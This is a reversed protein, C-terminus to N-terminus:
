TNHHSFKIYSTSNHQSQPPSQKNCSFFYMFFLVFSSPHSSLRNDPWLNFVLLSMVLMIIKNAVGDIMRNTFIGHWWVILKNNKFRVTIGKTIKETYVTSIKRDVYKCIYKVMPNVGDTIDKTFTVHWWVIQDKKENKIKGSCDRM